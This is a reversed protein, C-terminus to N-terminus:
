VLTLREARLQAAEAELAVLRSNDANLLFDTIARVKRRDIDILAVDIEAKRRANLVDASLAPPDRLVPAGSGDDFAILKGASQGALLVAYLEDSIEVADSPIGDQGHIDLSYFGGTTKSYYM